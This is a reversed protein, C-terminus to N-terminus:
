IVGMQNDMTTLAENVVAFAERLQEETVCLPPNTHLLNRWVVTYVGRERLFAALGAMQADTGAYQGFPEKTTRDKVLEICGL